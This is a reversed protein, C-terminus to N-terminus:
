DIGVIIFHFIGLSFCSVSFHFFCFVYNITSEGLVCVRSLIPSRPTYENHCVGDLTCDSVRYRLSPFAYWGLAFQEVSFCPRHESTKLVHTGFGRGSCKRSANPM